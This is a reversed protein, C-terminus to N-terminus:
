IKLGEERAGEAFAKVRGHYRYGRRDFVASMIGKEVAQKAFESGLRAAQAVKTKLDKASKMNKTSASVLTRGKEDDILQAWTYRNSRFVTLRPQLATGNIKARVRHARRSRKHNLRKRTRM